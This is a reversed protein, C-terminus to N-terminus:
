GFMEMYRDKEKIVRRLRPLFEVVVTFFKHMENIIPFQLEYFDFYPLTTKALNSPLAAWYNMQINENNHYDSSWPPHYDGNWKGQLNPPWSEQRTSSILLYRGFEFM